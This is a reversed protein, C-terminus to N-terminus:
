PTSVLERLVATAYAGPPLEFQLELEEDGSWQWALERVPLRLSRRQADVDASDLGDLLEQHSSLVQQELEAVEGSPGSGGRGPMPGTPHVDFDQLRQVLTEAFATEPEDPKNGCRTKATTWSGGALM